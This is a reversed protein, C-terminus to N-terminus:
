LAIEEAAVVMMPRFGVRLRAVLGLFERQESFVAVPASDLSGRGEALELLSSEPLEAGHSFAVCYNSALTASGLGISRAIEASFERARERTCSEPLIADEVNFPGIATRRLDALHARSECARAIDRALSRIYTGSSCRIDFVVRDNEYGLLELKEIHVSRPALEPTQGRMALEYSRIGDVHVASYAPPVQAIDGRFRELVRELDALLPTSAQAVVKGLPDLTDTEAGFQVIARYGKIQGMFWPTLRTLRGALVILLGSAFSDLTGAHGFKLEKTRRVGLIGCRVDQLVRNSTPGSPKDVLFFANLRQM